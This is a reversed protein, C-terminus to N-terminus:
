ISKAPAASGADGGLPAFSLCGGNPNVPGPIVKCGGGCDAFKGAEFQACISCHKAPDVAKDYYQLTQRLKRSADDIKAECETGGPGGSPVPKNCGELVVLGATATLGAGLLQLARRRGLSGSGLSEHEM